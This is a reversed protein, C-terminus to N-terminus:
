PRQPPAMERAEAAAIEEWSPARWVHLVGSQNGWAITNGDPSFWLGMYGTGEGELTFVDQWSETDWLKVAERDGGGVALRKGDASFATTHAGKLFGGLTAVPQWTAADWVRGFGLSSAVAFWKGDPSYSGVDPELTNLDLTRHSKDVLNRLVFDGEWGYAICQRGDPSVAFANGAPPAPWSQEEV